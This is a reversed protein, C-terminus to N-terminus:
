WTCVVKSSNFNALGVWSALTMTLFDILCASINIMSYYRVGMIANHTAYLLM